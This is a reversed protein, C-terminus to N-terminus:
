KRRYIQQVPLKTLKTQFIGAWYKFRTVRHGQQVIKPNEETEKNSHRSLTKFYDVSIQLVDVNM